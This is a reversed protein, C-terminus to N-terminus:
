PESPFPTLKPVTALGDYRPFMAFSLGQSNWCLTRNPGAPLSSMGVATPFPQDICFTM